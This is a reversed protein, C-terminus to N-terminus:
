NPDLARYFEAQLLMVLVPIILVVGAISIMGLLLAVGCIGSLWLTQAPQEWFLRVAQSAIRQLPWDPHQALAPGWYLSVVLLLLLSLQALVDPLMWGRAASFASLGALWFFLSYLPMLKFLGAKFHGRLAATLLAPSLPEGESVQRLVAFVTATAPPLAVASYLTFGIRVIEPLPFAWALLLPAGQAAWLLNLAVMRELQDRLLAFARSLPSREEEIRPGSDDFFPM